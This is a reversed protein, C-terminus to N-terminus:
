QQYLVPFEQHPPQPVPAQEVQHLSKLQYVTKDLSQHESTELMKDIRPSICANTYHVCQLLLMLGVRYRSRLTHDIRALHM